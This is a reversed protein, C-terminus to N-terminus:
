TVARLAPPEEASEGGASRKSPDLLRQVQALIAEADPQPEPPTPKDPVDSWLFDGVQNTIGSVVETPVHVYRKAVAADGWGMIEMIAPLPVKLVLLMTAATHRADHLRADRVQAEALLSKWEDHDVRPDIPRGTPQAFVWGGEQWLTGAFEREADQAAKHEM